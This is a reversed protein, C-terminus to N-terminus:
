PEQASPHIIRSARIRRDAVQLLHTVRYYSHCPPASGLLLQPLALVLYIM